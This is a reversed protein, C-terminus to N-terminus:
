IIYNKGDHHKKLKFQINFYNKIHNILVENESKSFCLTYISIRPFLYKTTKNQSSDIVLSGDDMYLCALGIPHTLLALVEPTLIKEGSSNYMINYLDSYIPHSPSHLNGSKDIKFDLNVLKEQKWKRYGLQKECGHERYHANKSRGYLALSGDGLLSGIIINKQEISM